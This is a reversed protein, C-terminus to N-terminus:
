GLRQVLPRVRLFGRYFFELLWVIPPTSAVVGLFRFSRLKTWLMAFARAGSHIDGSEDRVHFRKLADCKSLTGAVTPGQTESVDFWEILDAGKRKQYFAIERRCLPCAGDFFVTFKETM